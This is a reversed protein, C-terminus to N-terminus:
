ARVLPAMRSLEAAIGVDVLRIDGALRAAPGQLLGAKMGGFTVTVDAPLVAADPVDGSDPDIGSPIDVAVVRPGGDRSVVERLADVVSRAPERLAPHAAAGTGLIGDVVVDSDAALGAVRDALAAPASQADRATAVHAGAALAAALGAPHMRAGLSVIEVDHGQEALIAGAFLADGGNNGSGALILVGGHEPLLQAVVGALAAAARQMLPEGAALHPAEAQRIQAASYGDVM